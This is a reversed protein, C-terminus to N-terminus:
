SYVPEDDEKAKPTFGVAHTPTMLVHTFRESIWEPANKGVKRVRLRYTPLKWRLDYKATLEEIMETLVPNDVYTIDEDRLRSRGYYGENRLTLILARLEPNSPLKDGKPKAVPKDTFPGALKSMGLAIIAFIFVVILFAAM